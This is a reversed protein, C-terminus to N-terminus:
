KGKWSWSHKEISEGWRGNLIQGVEMKRTPKRNKENSSYFRKGNDSFLGM